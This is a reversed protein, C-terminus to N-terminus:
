ILIKKDNREISMADLVMKKNTKTNDGCDFILISGKDLVKEAVNFTHAFHKKDHLNGKQITL